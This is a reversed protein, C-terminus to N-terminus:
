VLGAIKEYLVVTKRSPSIGLEAKLIEKCTHFQMIAKKRNDMKWHAYMLHRHANELCNDILLMRNAINLVISYREEKEFLQCCKSLLQLLNERLSDRETEVWEERLINEAFDGRYNAYAKFYAKLATSYDQENEALRGKQYATSFHQFDSEIHLSENIEYYDGKRIVYNTESDFSKFWRRITHITVNLSNRSCYEPQDQWFTRMLRKSTAKKHMLLYMLLAKAKNPLKKQIHKGQAFIKFSGFFQVSLDAGSFYEFPQSSFISANAVIGLFDKPILMANLWSSLRKPKVTGRTQEVFHDLRNLLDSKDELTCVDKAGLRFASVKDESSIAEGIMLATAKPYISQLKKLRAIGDEEPLVHLLLILPISELDHQDLDTLRSVATIHTSYQLSNRIAQICPTHRGVIITHHTNM